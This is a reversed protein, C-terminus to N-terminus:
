PTEPAFLDEEEDISLDPVAPGVVEVELDREIQSAPETTDPTIPDAPTVSSAAPEADLQERLQKITLGYRDAVERLAAKGDKQAKDLKEEESMEAVAEDPEESEGFVQAKIYGPSFLAFVFVHVIVTFIVIKVLSHGRFDSMLEDPSIADIDKSVKAVKPKTTPKNPPPPTTESM